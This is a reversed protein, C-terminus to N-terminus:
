LERLQLITALSAIKKLELSISLLIKKNNEKVKELPLGKKLIRQVYDRISSETLNLKKSLLLYDVIFGEEELQYITTFVALEQHTLKKLKLRLEKKINDLTNLVETVKELKTIRQEPFYIEKNLRVKTGKNRKTNDTQRDTQRDTSVGDNGISINSIPSKSAYLPLNHAPIHTSSTSSAPNLQQITKNITNQAPNETSSRTSNDTQRDTKNNPTTKIIEKLSQIERKLSEIQATLSLIDQKAKTFAEKIPNTELM